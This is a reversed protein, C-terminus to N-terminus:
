KKVTEKQKEGKLFVAFVTLFMTKIDGLLSFNALEDLNYKMKEPLIEEVYTREPNDADALIGDENRFAISARGTIGAPMLLTAKMENTYQEVYKEVEPRTGVFSMDGLLVNILQPLEDIRYKRLVRGLKTIREDDAATIQLGNEGDVRMTRFKFIRFVEGYRSVRTQRFFVPGPSSCKVCVSLVLMVPILVVLLLASLVIDFARKVFLSAKKKELIRYYREVESNQMFDPINEWKKLMM